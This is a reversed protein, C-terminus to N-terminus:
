LFPPRRNQRPDFRHVDFSEAGIGMLQDIPDGGIKLRYAVV